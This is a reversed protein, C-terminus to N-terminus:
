QAAPSASADPNNKGGAAPSASAPPEEPAPEEAAPSASSPAEEAAPSASSGGAPDEGGPVAPIDQVRDIVGGGGGGGLDVDGGSLTSGAGSDDFGAVHIGPAAGYPCEAWLGCSLSNGIVKEVGWIAVLCIVLAVAAAALAKILIPRRAPTPLGRFWEVAARMRGAFNNRLDPRGPPNAAEATVAQEAPAAAAGAERRERLRTAGGRVRGAANEIYAKLVASGGTIIMATVAAGLLTGAVGFRSTVFAAGTAALGAAMVQHTDIGPNANRTSM